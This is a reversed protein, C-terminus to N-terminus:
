YSRIFEAKFSIFCSILLMCQKNTTKLIFIFFLDHNM